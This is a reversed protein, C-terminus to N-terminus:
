DEDRKLTELYSKVNAGIEEESVGFNKLMSLFREKEDRRVAETHSHLLNHIFHKMNERVTEKNCACDRSNCCVPYDIEIDEYLSDFEREWEEERKDQNQGKGCGYNPVLASEPKPCKDQNQSM